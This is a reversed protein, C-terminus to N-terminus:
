SWSIRLCPGLTLHVPQCHGVQFSSGLAFQGRAGPYAIGESVQPLLRSRELKGLFTSKPSQSPPLCLDEM